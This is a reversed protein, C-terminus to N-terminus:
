RTKLPKSVADEDSWNSRLRLRIASQTLKNKDAWQPLTLTIGFATLRRNNSKNNGQEKRTAWRINGPEYDANNDIRELTHLTTPPDGIELFFHEFGSKEATGNLWLSCVKIGRDLYPKNVPQTGYCRNKMAQWAAYVKSVKGNSKHGHVVHVSKRVAFALCGCSRTSGRLVNGLLGEWSKGCSCNGTARMAGKPGRFTTTITLLGFTRGIFKEHADAERGM